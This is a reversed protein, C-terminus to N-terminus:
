NDKNGNTKEGKIFYEKLVKIDEKTKKLHQKTFYEEFIGKKILCEVTCYLSCLAELQKENM